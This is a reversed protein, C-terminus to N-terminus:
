PSILIPFDYMITLKTSISSTTNRRFITANDICLREKLIDALGIILTATLGIFPCDLYRLTWLERLRERYLTDIFAVHVENFFCM